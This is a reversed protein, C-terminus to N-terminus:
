HFDYYAREETVKRCIGGCSEAVRRSATNDPYITVLVENIERRRAEELLLKLLAKGCGQRRHDPDIAYGISGGIHRLADTLYLRLRGIGIPKGDEMLWYTVSPVMWDELGEGRAIEDQRRLWAPFEAYDMGNVANIFGNENGGIRQLLDYIERGDAPSLQQLTYM